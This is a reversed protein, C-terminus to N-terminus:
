KTVRLAAGHPRPDSFYSERNFVLNPDPQLSHLILEIEEDSKHHQFQHSGYLDFTNLLTARYSRRLRSARSEHTDVPIDGRICLGSKEVTFGILPIMRLFAMTRSYGLLFSFSRRSLVRRLPVYVLHWKIWKLPDGDGLSYCNFVFEGGPAVIKFLADATAEVSPTHQIVNHCYVIGQISKPLIPPQDISCQIIDVNNFEKLNHSIIGDVAHSLELVIVHKAGSELFWKSQAGSGGGADVILKGEFYDPSGFTNRVTHELWHHKFEVFNFYNWEDGFSNVALSDVDKTFRPIGNIIPFSNGSPSVLFGSVVSGDDDYTEDVLILPAMTIPECLYRLLLPTM